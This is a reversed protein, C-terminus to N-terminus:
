VIYAGCAADGGGGLFNTENHPSDKVFSVGGSLCMVCKSGTLGGFGSM